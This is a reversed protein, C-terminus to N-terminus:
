CIADTSRVLASGAREACAAFKGDPQLLRSILLEAVCKCFGFAAFGEINGYVNHLEAVFRQDLAAIQREFDLQTVIAIV